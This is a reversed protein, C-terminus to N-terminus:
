LLKTATQVTTSNYLFSRIYMGSQPDSVSPNTNLHHHYETSEQSVLKNM